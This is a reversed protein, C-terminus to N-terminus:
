KASITLEVEVALNQAAGGSLPISNSWMSNGRARFSCHVFSVTYVLETNTSIKIKKTRVHFKLPALRRSASNYKIVNTNVDCIIM